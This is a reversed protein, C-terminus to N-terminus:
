LTTFPKPALEAPAKRVAWGSTSASVKVPSVRVPSTMMFAAALPERGTDSSIPPLFAEMTNASQSKSLAM